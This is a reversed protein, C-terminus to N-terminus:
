EAPEFDDSKCCPCMYFSQYAPAGWYEGVCEPYSVPEDFEEGCENCKYM